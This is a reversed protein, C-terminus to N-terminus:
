EELLMERRAYDFTVRFHQLVDNGILADTETTTGTAFVKVSPQPLTWRGIAISRTPMTLMQHPGLLSPAAPAPSSAKLLGHAAAFPHRVIMAQQAGTDVMARIPLRTGDALTLVVRVVPLRRVFELPLRAAHAPPRDCASVIRKAYDITVVRDAFFDYGILGQIDRHQAKFNDLPMVMVNQKKLRVGGVDLDVGNTAGLSQALDSGVISVEAGSDLVFRVPPRGNVSVPIEIQGPTWRFPIDICALLAVLALNM